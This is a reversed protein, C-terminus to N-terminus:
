GPSDCGTLGESSVPRQVQRSDASHNTTSYEGQEPYAYQNKFTQEEDWPVEPVFLIEM